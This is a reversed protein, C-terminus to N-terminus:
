QEKAQSRFAHLTLVMTAALMLAGAGVHATTIFFSRHTWITMPGLVMQTVVLGALIMVPLVLERSAGHRRLVRAVLIGVVIAVAFGFLRHSFHIWVQSLTVAPLDAESWSRAEIIGALQEASVPPLIHQFSLPFDPIALGSQTHRMVAGLIVQLYICGLVILCAKRLGALQGVTGIRPLTRWGPSTITALTVTLCFFVEALGSHAASAVTPLLFIVTIGGLLGQLGVTVLAVLGLWKVRRPQDSFWLWVCLVITLLGISAAVLRHVHEYFIGGVWKSPPFTFMNEGYTTPWDPVALGSGTTTVTSGVLILVFTGIALVVAFRHLPVSAPSQARDSYALSAPITSM